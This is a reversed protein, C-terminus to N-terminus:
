STRLPSGAVAVPDEQHHRVPLKRGVASRFGPNRHQVQGPVQRSARPEVHGDQPLLQLGRLRRRRVQGHGELSQHPRAPEQRCREAQFLFGPFHKVLTM